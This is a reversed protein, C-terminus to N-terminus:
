RSSGVSAGGIARARLGANSKAQALVIEPLPRIRVM